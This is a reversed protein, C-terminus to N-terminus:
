VNKLEELINIANLIFGLVKHPNDIHLPLMSLFLSAEYLRVLEYDFGNDSLYKKFIEVYKTNNFYIDLNLKMKKSINIDYLGTNFFDYNGCVSHSLKAIDYYPNTWLEKEELAGKPDILRLLNIEKSYLMNAFFVDGHGIVLFFKKQKLHKKSIKGYLDKYLTIIEEFNNFDTGNKIINNIQNYETLSIFKKVRDDLKDLYLKDACKIYEEKSVEKVCRNKFFYFVKDLINNFEDLSVAGNTWRIAIDTMPLREMTYSAYEGEEKYDFPMVMWSKMKEPLLWYFTYEMKMKKKDKSKKTVIYNDGELSNFFRADFGGSIYYLLNQYISIDLYFNSSLVPYKIYENICKNFKFNDIFKKYDDVNDFVLGCIKDSKIIINEKIFNLKKLFIIFDERSTIAFNSFFHFITKNELNKFLIDDLYDLNSIKVIEYEIHSEEVIKNFREYLTQRKIIIDGFSKDGIITKIKNSVVVSDDYIIVNKRM